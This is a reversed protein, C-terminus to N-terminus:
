EELLSFWTEARSVLLARVSEDVPIVMWAFLDVFFKDVRLLLLGVPGRRVLLGDSGAVRSCLMSWHRNGCACM